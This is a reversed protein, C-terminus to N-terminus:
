NGSYTIAHKWFNHDGSLEKILDDFSFFHFLDECLILQEFRKNGTLTQNRSKKGFEKKKCWDLSSIWVCLIKMHCLIRTLSVPPYIKKVDLTTTFNYQKGAVTPCQVGCKCTDDCEGLPFPIDQGFVNGTVAASVGEHSEAPTFIMSITAKQGRLFQCEQPDDCPIVDVNNTKGAQFHSFFFHTYYTICLNFM